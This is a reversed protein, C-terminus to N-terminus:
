KRRLGRKGEKTLSGKGEMKRDVREEDKWDRGEKKRRLEKRREGM